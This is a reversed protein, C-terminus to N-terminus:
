SAVVAGILKNFHFESDNNDDEEGLRMPVIKTSMRRWREAEMRCLILCHDVQINSRTDGLIVKRRTLIRQIYKYIAM